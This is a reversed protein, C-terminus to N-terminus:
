ATKNILKRAVLGDIAVDLIGPVRREGREWKYYSGIPTNLIIAMAKVTLGNALRLRKLEERTM